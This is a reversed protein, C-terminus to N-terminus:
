RVARVVRINDIGIVADKDTSTTNQIMIRLQRVGDSGGALFDSYDTLRTNGNTLQNLSISYTYWTGDQAHAVEGLPIAYTLENGYQDPYWLLVELGDLSATTNVAMEWRVDFNGSPASPNYLDAPTTPFMQAGSWAALNILKDNSWGYGGAITQNIGGFNGDLSAIGPQSDKIMNGSIGWGWNWPWELVGNTDFDAIMGEGSNIQTNRNTASAGSRSVVVINSGESFDLNDPVTVRLTSGANATQIGSTVFVDEGPFYVTDVFYFYRGYLTLEDGPKVYQNQVQLVQPAPPLTQFDFVAEGRQTVLRLKNVVDPNTAVTPVSDNVQIIVSNATVYAPNVGLPYDNLYVETTTSLNQGIIALTSGLTASVFASDATTPDTNRVREIIPPGSTGPEEDTCSFLGLALVFAVVAWQTTFKGRINKMENLKFPSVAVEKTVLTM